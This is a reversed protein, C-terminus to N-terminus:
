AGLELALMHAEVREALRQLGDWLVQWGPRGTRQTDIWGGLKALARCAWAVNPPVVPPRTKHIALYLVRWETQSLFADCPREGLALPTVDPRAETALVAERLQLLRTAVFALIVVGRELNAATRPRLAEVGTGSKWAKHFEEIRWRQRYIWLVRLADERCTVPESTLLLWALPEVGARAESEISDVDRELVLGPGACRATRRAARPFRRPGATALGGCARLSTPAAARENSLAESSPATAGLSRSDM